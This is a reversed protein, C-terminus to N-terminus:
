KEATKQLIFSKFENDLNKFLIGIGAKINSYMLNPPVKKAWVITGIAYFKKEDHIVEIDLTTGPPYVTNTKIYMGTDSLDIALGSSSCNGNIGFKVPVRFPVRKFVRKSM